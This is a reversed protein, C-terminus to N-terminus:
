CIITKRDLGIKINQFSLLSVSGAFSIAPDATYFSDPYDTSSWATYINSAM